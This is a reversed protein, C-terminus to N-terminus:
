GRSFGTWKGSEVAQKIDAVWGRDKGNMSKGIRKQFRLIITTDEKRLREVADDASERKRYVVHTVEIKKPVKEAKVTEERKVIAAPEQILIWTGSFRDVKGPESKIKKSLM